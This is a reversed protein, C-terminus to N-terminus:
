KYLMAITYYMILDYVLALEYIMCVTYTSTTAVAPVNLFKKNPLPLLITLLSRLSM